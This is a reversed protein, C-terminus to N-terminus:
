PTETPMPRWWDPEPWPPDIVDVGVTALQVFEGDQFRTRRPRGHIMQFETGDKPASDMPQWCTERASLAAIAENLKKIEPILLDGLSVAYSNGSLRVQTNIHSLTAKVSNLREITEDNM